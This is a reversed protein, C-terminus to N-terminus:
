GWILLGHSISTSFRVVPDSYVFLSGILLDFTPTTNLGYMVQQIM